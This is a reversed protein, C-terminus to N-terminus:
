ISIEVGAIADAQDSHEPECLILRNHAIKGQTVLHNKVNEQREMALQKLQQLREASPPPPAKKPDIIESFLKDRDGLNTSGCLVLHIGPRETLLESLKSLQSEHASTLMSSGPDFVLPDFNMGTALNFLVNGGAYALGYPTYFTILTVTTAKATAKIIADTPDFDPNNIDGTIPIKLKIRDKKDKLLMLSQNIPMGFKKDLEAADEKSKAKLNFHYLVLSINSDLKGKDSLLKIDADMQGSRIIHGIAQEAKPSAVRLDLGTIKGTADFSPMSEFPMAVGSIDITGHKLTKARLELPSKQGPKESDLNKINIHLENLGVQMKPTVSMDTFEVVRNSDLNFEGVRIKLPKTDPGTDTNSKKDDPQEKGATRWKDLELSGDKNQTIELGLDNVSVRDVGLANDRYSFDSVDVSAVTLTHKGETDTLELGALNDLDLQEFVVNDFGDIGLQSIVLNEFSVLDRNLLNNTTILQSLALDGNISIMMNETQGGASVAIDGQWNSNALNLCYDLPEIKEPLKVPKQEYCLEPEIVSIDGLKINLSANDTNNAAPPQTTEAQKEQQPLLWREYAFKGTEDRAMSILPKELTISSINVSDTNDVSVQNIEFTNIDVAHKHKSHGSQQLLTLQELMLSDLKIDDIGNIRIRNLSINGIDILAGDIRNNFLQLANIQLKADVIIRQEPQETEAGTTDLDFDGQWSLNEISGCYDILPSAQERQDYPLDYQQFCFGLDSFDIQRLSADWAVLDEEPAPVEETDVGQRIVIGAIVVADPFQKTDLNFDDLEISTIHITKKSLPRWDWDISARGINFLQDGARTGSAGTLTFTGKRVNISINDISTTVGQKNLWYSVSYIITYPLSVRVVALVLVTILVALILRGQWLNNKYLTKLRAYGASLRSM